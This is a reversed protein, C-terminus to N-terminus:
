NIDAGIFYHYKAELEEESTGWITTPFAVDGCYAKFTYAPFLIDPGGALSAINGDGDLDVRKIDKVAFGKKLLRLTEVPDYDIDWSEDKFDGRIVIGKFTCSIHLQKLKERTSESLTGIMRAAGRSNRNERIIYSVFAYQQQETLYSSNRYKPQQEM